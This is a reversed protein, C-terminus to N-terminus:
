FVPSQRSMDRSSDRAIISRVDSHMVSPQFGLYLWIRVQLDGLYTLSLFAPLGIIRRGKWAGKWRIGFAEMFSGGFCFYITEKCRSIVVLKAKDPLKPFFAPFDFEKVTSVSSYQGHNPLAKEIIDGSIKTRGSWTIRIKRIILGAICVRSEWRTVTTEFAGVYSSDLSSLLLQVRRRAAQKRGPKCTWTRGRWNFPRRGPHSGSPSWCGYVIIRSSFQM